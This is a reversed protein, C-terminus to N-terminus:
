GRRGGGRGGPGRRGRSNRLEQIKESITAQYASKTIVKGKTPAEIKIKKKPNLIIESCLMKTNGADVELILGPLGWYEGPGHGVPIQPTYWAEVETMKIATEEAPTPPEEAQRRRGNGRRFNGRSVTFWTLEASPVSATAKFCTYQGIQKTETGMKWNIKQLGDKILFQKGYFEQHQVLVNEKVNKYQKGRSFNSGFFNRGGSSSVELKEEETFVSAEKNFDLIYTKELQNKLRAQIQKKQAESLTAGRNGLDLTAKSLYIAQGQFEQASAAYCCLLFPLLIRLQFLITKM